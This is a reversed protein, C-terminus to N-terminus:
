HPMDDPLESSPLMKAAVTTAGRRALAAVVGSIAAFLVLEKLPADDDKQPPQHGFVKSWLANLVRTAVFGTALIALTSVVKQVPYM